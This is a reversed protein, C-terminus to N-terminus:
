YDKLDESCIRFSFFINQKKVGVLRIITTTKIWEPLKMYHLIVPIQQSIDNNDSENTKVYDPGHSQKPSFTTFLTLLWLFYYICNDIHIKLTSSVILYM